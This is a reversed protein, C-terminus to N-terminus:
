MEPKSIGKVAIMCAEELKTAVMAKYRGNHPPIFGSVTDLLESFKAKTTNVAVIQNEDIPWSGFEPAFTSQAECKDNTYDNTEM